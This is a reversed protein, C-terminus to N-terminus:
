EEEKIIEIKEDEMDSQLMIEKETVEMKEEEM